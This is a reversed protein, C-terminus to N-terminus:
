KAALRYDGVMRECGRGQELLNLVSVYLVRGGMVVRYVSPSVHLVQPAVRTGQFTLPRNGPSSVKNCFFFCFLNAM